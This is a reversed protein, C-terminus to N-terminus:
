VIFRSWPYQINWGKSVFPFSASINVLVLWCVLKLTATCTVSQKLWVGSDAPFRFFDLFCSEFASPIAEPPQHSFVFSKSSSTADLRLIFMKLLLSSMCQASRWVIMQSTSQCSPAPGLPSAQQGSFRASRSWVEKKGNDIRNPSIKFNIYLIKINAWEFNPSSQISSQSNFM